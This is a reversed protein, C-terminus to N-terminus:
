SAKEPLNYDIIRKDIAARNYLKGSVGEYYGDGRNRWKIAQMAKEKTSYLGFVDYDLVEGDVSLEMFVIYVLM